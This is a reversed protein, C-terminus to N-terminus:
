NQGLRIPLKFFGKNKGKLYFLIIYKSQYKIENNIIQLLM